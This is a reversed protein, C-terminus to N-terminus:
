NSRKSRIVSSLYADRPRKSSVAAVVWPGATPLSFSKMFAEAVSLANPAGSVGLIQEPSLFSPFSISDSCTKSKCGILIDSM